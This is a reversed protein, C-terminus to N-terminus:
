VEDHISPRCTVNEVDNEGNYGESSDKISFRPTVRHGILYAAWWDVQTGEKVQMTYPSLVSRAQQLITELTVKQRRQRAEKAGDSEVAGPVLVYLRTLYNGSM